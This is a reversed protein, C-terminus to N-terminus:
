AGNVCQSRPRAPVASMPMGLPLGTSSHPMRVVGSPQVGTPALQWWEVMRTDYDLAALATRVSAATGKRRHVEISAAVVARKRAEGPRVGGVLLPQYAGAHSASLTGAFWAILALGIAAAAGLLALTALMVTFHDSATIQVASDLALGYWRALLGENGGVTAIATATAVLALLLSSVILVRGIGAGTKGPDAQDAGARM